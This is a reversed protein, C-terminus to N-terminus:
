GKRAVPAHPRPYCAGAPKPLPTDSPRACAAATESSGASAKVGLWAVMGLVFTAFACGGITLGIGWALTRNDHEVLGLAMVINGFAPPGNTGPGPLILM